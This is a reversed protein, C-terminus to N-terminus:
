RRPKPTPSKPSSTVRSTAFASIEERVPPLLGIRMRPASARLTGSALRLGQEGVEIREFRDEALGGYWFQLDQLLEDGDLM